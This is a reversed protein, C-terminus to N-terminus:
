ALDFLLIEAPSVALVKLAKEDSVAAGDGPGLKTGNVEISGTVVQVWGHRGPALVHKVGANADLISAFLSADQHIALSGDRGDHSVVLLLSNKKAAESFTKQDYRPKLGRKEPVIWIQLLRMRTKPDPNFESHTIGSGATMVQVDGRRIVEGHGMSDRHELAGEVVYSIIEMDRHPHTGFGQGGDILDDNIVRLTRFGMHEPDYYEGFSFTHRSDLWGFDAVGRDESKRVTIM